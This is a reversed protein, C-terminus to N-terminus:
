ADNPLLYLWATLLVLSLHRAVAAKVALGGM